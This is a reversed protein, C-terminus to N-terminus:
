PSTFFYKPLVAHSIKHRENSRFAFFWISTGYLITSLAGITLLSTYNPKAFNVSIILPIILALCVLVVTSAMKSVYETYPISTVKCVYVPQIILRIITIPIFTGLAVGLIGLPKVLILSIILNSLGEITNFLAYFKHKSMGYLLSVSTTQWLDFLMGFVLIALCPYADLYQTGMWRSIFPKGWIILGFAPFSSIVIAIKNGLFFIRKIQDYDKAGELQSFQPFLVGTCAVIFLIYHTIMTSAIRYHTVASLGVMSAIVLYDLNFRLIDAIRAIFTFVSYSFLNKLGSKNGIKISINLSPFNKRSFYVVMIKKPLTSIITIWAISLIGYGQTLFYIILSTRILMTLIERTSLIDIRLKATLSESFVSLPFDIAINIGLILVIKYFLQADEINSFFLPALFALAFALILAIIGIGIFLFLATNFIENFEKDKGAGIAGAMYRSAASSLGADLLSYYGLFTGILTWLGFM